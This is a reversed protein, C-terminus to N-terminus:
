IGLEVALEPCTDRMWQDGLDESEPEMTELEDLSSEYTGYEAILADAAAVIRPDFDSGADMVSRLDLGDIEANTLGADALLDPTAEIRDFIPDFVGLMVDPLGRRLEPVEDVLDVYGVVEAIEAHNDPADPNLEGFGFGSVLGVETYGNIFVAFSQCVPTDDINDLPISLDFEDDLDPLDTDADADTPGSDGDSGTDADDDAEPDSSASLEADSGDTGDLDSGDTASPTDDDTDDNTDDATGGDTGDAETFDADDTKDTASVTAGPDSTGTESSGASSCAACVAILSLALVSASRM